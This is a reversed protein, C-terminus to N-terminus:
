PVTPRRGLTAALPLLFCCLQVLTIKIGLEVQTVEGLSFPVMAGVTLCAVSPPIGMLVGAVSPSSGRLRVPVWVGVPSLALAPTEAAVSPLPVVFWIAPRWAGLAVLRVLLCVVVLLLSAVVCPSWGVVPRLSM